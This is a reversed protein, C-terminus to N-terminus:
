KAASYAKILKTLPTNPSINYPSGTRGPLRWHWLYLAEPHSQKTELIEFLTQFAIQRERPDKINSPSQSWPTTTTQDFPTLGFESITLPRKQAKAFNQLVNLKATLQHKLQARAPKNPGSAQEKTALPFYANVSINDLQRWFPVTAYSEWHAAYALKLDPHPSHKIARRLEFILQDWHPRAARNHTLSAQESGIYLAKAKAQCAAEALETLNQQYQAFFNELAAGFFNLYGRWVAGINKNNDIELMPYLSASIGFQAAEHLGKQLFKLNPAATTKFQSENSIQGTIPNIFRYVMLMCRKINHERLEEFVEPWFKDPNLGGGHWLPLHVGLPVTARTIQNPNAKTPPILNATLAAALGNKLLTRRSLTPM